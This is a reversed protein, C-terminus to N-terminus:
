RTRSRLWKSEVERRDRKSLASVEKRGQLGARVAGYLASPGRSYWLVELAAGLLNVCTRTMMHGSANKLVTRIRNARSLVVLWNKGRRSSSGHWVHQVVSEPVYEASFGALQARWGLDLDELYMFHTRDFYGNQLKIQELMSRRYAAAGACACFIEARTACESQLKGEARDCGSGNWLLEVGTSNVVGPRGHFLMLSQLTGVSPAANEAAQVLAAAWDPEAFADNNLMAVWSGHSFALGRNCGEAFGLNEGARLLTFQPFREAVLEVSGDVSGNDVVIVELERHTQKELAALCEALHHKSNWNVVIVSLLM